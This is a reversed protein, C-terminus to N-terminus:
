KGLVQNKYVAPTCDKFNKFQRYFSVKSSFGSLMALQNMSIEVDKALINTAHEIRFRNIYTYFSQNLRTSLVQTLHHSPMRLQKALKSLSLSADLYPEARVTFERLRTEYIILQEETLTSREYKIVEVVNEPEATLPEIYDESFVISTKYKFILVATALMLTYIMISLLDKADRKEMLEQRYLPAIISILAMFLLLLIAPLVVLKYRKLNADPLAINSVGYITYSVLSIPTTVILAISYLKDFEGGKGIFVVLIAFALWFLSPIVLHKTLTKNTIKNYRILAIAIYLMPGYLLVFPALRNLYMHGAFLHRVLFVFTAHLGLYINLYFILGNFAKSKDARFWFYFNVFTVVITALLLYTLVPFSTM